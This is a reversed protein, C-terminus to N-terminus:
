DARVRYGMTNGGLDPMEMIEDISYLKQGDIIRDGKKLGTTWPFYSNTFVGAEDLTSDAFQLVTPPTQFGEFLFTFGLIFDGSVVVNQLGTILNVAAEIEAATDDFNLDTTQLLGYKLKFTGVTPPTDFFLEQTYQGLISDVPIIFEKGAVTTHEPGRLFRFFNSPTIRIPSFIDITGLRKLTAPRSHIKTIANFASKLM